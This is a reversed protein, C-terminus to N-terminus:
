GVDASVVNVDVQLCTTAAAIRVICVLIQLPILLPTHFQAHM